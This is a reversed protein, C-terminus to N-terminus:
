MTTDNGITLKVDGGSKPIAIIGRALLTEGDRIEVDHKGPKLPVYSVPAPAIWVGDIFVSGRGERLEITLSADKRKAHKKREKARAKDDLQAGSEWEAGDICVGQEDCVEAAEVSGPILLVSALVSSTISAALVIRRM